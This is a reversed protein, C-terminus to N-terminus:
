PSTRGHRVLYEAALAAVAPAMGIIGSVRGVLALSV